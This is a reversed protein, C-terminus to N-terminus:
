QQIPELYISKNRISSNGVSPCKKVAMVIKTSGILTQLDAESEKIINKLENLGDFYYIPFTVTEENSVVRGQQIHEIARNEIKKLETTNYGSRELDKSLKEMESIKTEEVSNHELTRIMQSFPVSKFVSKPHFSQPRLYRKSDTPKKYSKYQICNNEDIYLTVDLFNVSKGFELEKIPFNIGFKNTEVNLRKVLNEFSRRTGRWNWHM